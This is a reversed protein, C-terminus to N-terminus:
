SLLPKQYLKGNQPTACVIYIIGALKREIKKIDLKSKEILEIIDRDIHSGSKRYYHPGWKKQVSRILRYKSLGREILLIRGGPKCWANYRNLVWLPDEYECISFTSVITDFSQIQFELEETSSVIFDANIGNESATQKAKEIMRGSLDTGTVKVHVPYYKFNDGTGVSIELVNGFAHSLLQRRWKEEMNKWSIGM